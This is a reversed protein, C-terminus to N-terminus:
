FEDDDNIIEGDGYTFYCKHGLFCKIYDLEDKEEEEFKSQNFKKFAYTKHIDAKFFTKKRIEELLNKCKSKNSRITIERVDKM